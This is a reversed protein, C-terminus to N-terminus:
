LSLANKWFKIPELLIKDIYNISVDYKIGPNKLWRPTVGRSLMDASTNASSKIYFLSPFIDTRVVLNASFTLETM